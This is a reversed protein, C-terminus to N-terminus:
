DRLKTKSLVTQVSKLIGKMEQGSFPKVKLYKPDLCNQARFTQLIWNVKKIKAKGTIKKLQKALSIMAKKDHIGPVVTTRFEYPLNSKLILNISQKIKTIPFDTKITKDYAEFSIKLDMAVFDILEKDILKKLM